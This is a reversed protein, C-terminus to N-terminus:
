KGSMGMSIVRTRGSSLGEFRLKGLYSGNRFLTAEGAPLYHPTSNTIAGSFNNLLGTPLQEATLKLLYSSLRTNGSRVAFTETSTNEALSGPSVRTLFGKGSGNLRASLELKVSDNGILHLNYLPHWDSGATSYRLTVKGSPPTVSIRVTKQTPRKKKEIAAISNDIRRIEQGTKRRATYVAELQAIAFDTGQRINQVPDPNTKSKRPAKGSQAKAAATFIEERTALALLRDELRQRQGSLLDLEKDVTASAPTNHTEVTVITTDAAPVITLSNELLDASLQVEILGKAATADQEVITGDRYFTRTDAATVSGACTTIILLCIVICRM